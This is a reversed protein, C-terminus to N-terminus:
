NITKKLWEYVKKLEDLTADNKIRNAKQSIINVNGKTYGLEPKLRDISPSNPKPGHGESFYIPIGLVPCIDPIVLDSEEIDFPLNKKKSLSRKAVVQNHSWRERWKRITYQSTNKWKGNSCKVFDGEM